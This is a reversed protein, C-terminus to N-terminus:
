HGTIVVRTCGFFTEVGKGMITDECQGLGLGVGLGLLLHGTYLQIFTNVSVSVWQCYYEMSDINTEPSPSPWHSYVMSFSQRKFTVNVITTSEHSSGQLLTGESLSDTLLSLRSEASLRAPGSTSCRRLRPICGPFWTIFFVRASIQNFPHTEVSTHSLSVNRRHKDEEKNAIDRKRESLTFPGVLM